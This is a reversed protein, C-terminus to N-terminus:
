TASKLGHFNHKTGFQIQQNGSIPRKKIKNKKKNNNPKEPSNVEVGWRQLLFNQEQVGENEDDGDKRGIM